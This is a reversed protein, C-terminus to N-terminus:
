EIKRLRECEEREKEAKLRCTEEDAKRKAEAAQARLENLQQCHEAQERSHAAKM